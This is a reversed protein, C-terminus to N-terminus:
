FRGDLARESRQMKTATRSQKQWPEPAYHFCSLQGDAAKCGQWLPTKLGWELWPFPTEKHIQRDAAVMKFNGGGQAAVHGALQISNGPMKILYYIYFDKQCHVVHRLFISSLFCLAINADLPTIQKGLTRMSIQICRDILQGVLQVTLDPTVFGFGLIVVVLGDFPQRSPRAPHNERWFISAVDSLRGTL